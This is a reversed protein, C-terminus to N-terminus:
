KKWGNIINFLQEDIYFMRGDKMYLVYEIKTESYFAYRLQVHSYEKKITTLSLPMKYGSTDIIEQSLKANDGM